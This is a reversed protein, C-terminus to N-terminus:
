GTYASICFTKKGSPGSASKEDPSGANESLGDSKCSLFSTLVPETVSSTSLREAASEAMSFHHADKPPYM